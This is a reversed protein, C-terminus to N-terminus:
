KVAIYEYFQKYIVNSNYNPYILKKLKVWNSHM